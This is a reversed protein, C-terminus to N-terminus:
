IYNLLLKFLLKERMNHLIDFSNRYVKIAEVNIQKDNDKEEDTGEATGLGVNISAVSQQVAENVTAGLVNHVAENM